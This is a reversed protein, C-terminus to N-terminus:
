VTAAPPPSPAPQLTAEVALLMQFLNDFYLNVNYTDTPSPQIFTIVNSTKDDTKQDTTVTNTTTVTTTTEVNASGFLVPIFGPKIDTANITQSVNTTSTDSISENTLSFVDGTASTGGGSVNPPM